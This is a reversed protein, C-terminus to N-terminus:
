GLKAPLVLKQRSTSELLDLRDQKVILEALEARTKVGIHATERDCAEKFEPGTLEATGDVYEAHVLAGIQNRISNPLASVGSLERRHTDGDNPTFNLTVLAQQRPTALSGVLNLCGQQWLVHGAIKLKDEAVENKGLTYISFEPLGDEELDFTSIIMIGLSYEAVEADNWGTSSIRVIRWIGKTQAHARRLVDFGVDQYTRLDTPGVVSRQPMSRSPDEELADLLADIYDPLKGLRKRAAINAQVVPVLAKQFVEITSPKKPPRNLLNAIKDGTLGAEAALQTQSVGLETRLFRVLCQLAFFSSTESMPESQAGHLIGMVWTPKYM